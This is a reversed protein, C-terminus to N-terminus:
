QEIKHEDPLIYMEDTFKPTKIPELVGIKRPPRQLSKTGINIDDLAARLLAENTDGFPLINESFDLEDLAIDPPFGYVLEFESPNPSIVLTSEGDIIVDDM